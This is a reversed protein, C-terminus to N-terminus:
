KRCQTRWRCSPRRSCSSLGGNLADVPTAFYEKVAPRTLVRVQWAFFLTLAVFAVSVVVRLFGDDIDAADLSFAGVRLHGESNTAATYAGLLGLLGGIYGVVVGTRRSKESRELLGKGLLFGLLQLLPLAPRDHVWEVLASVVAHVGIAMYVVGLVRTAVLPAVLPMAILGRARFFSILGM